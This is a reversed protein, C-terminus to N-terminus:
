DSIGGNIMKRRLISTYGVIVTAFHKKRGERFDQDCMITIYYLPNNEEIATNTMAEAGDGM